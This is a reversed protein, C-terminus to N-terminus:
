GHEKIDILHIEVLVSGGPTPDGICFATVFQSDDVGLADAIGDRGSKFAAVLNDDDRRRRDPPCFVLSLSLKQGHQLHQGAAVRANHAYAYCAARYRKAHRSKIAWHGRANPSLQRPPWEVEFRLM